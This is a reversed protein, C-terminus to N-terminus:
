SKKPNAYLQTTYHSKRFLKSIRKSNTLAENKENTNRNSKQGRPSVGSGKTKRGQALNTARLKPTMKSPSQKVRLRALGQM